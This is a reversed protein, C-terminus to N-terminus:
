AVKGCGYRSDSQMVNKALLMAYEAATGSMILGMHCGQVTQLAAGLREATTQSEKLTIIMDEKAAIVFAPKAINEVHGVSMIAQVNLLMNGPGPTFNAPMDGNFLAEECVDPDQMAASANLTLYSKLAAFPHRLLFRLNAMLAGSSPTSGILTISDVMEPRHKLMFNQALYGGSSHGVLHVHEVGEEQLTKLVASISQMQDGISFNIRKKEAHDSNGHGLQSFVNSAIGRNALSQMLPIFMEADSWQGHVFLVRTKSKQEFPMVGILELNGKPTHVSTRSLYDFDLSAPVNLKSLPNIVAALHPKALEEFSSIEPGPRSFM